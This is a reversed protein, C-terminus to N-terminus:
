GSMTGLYKNENNNQGSDGFEAAVNRRNDPSVGSKATVSWHYQLLRAGICSDLSDHEPRL